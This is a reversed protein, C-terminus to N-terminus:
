SVPRTRGPSAHGSILTGDPDTVSQDVKPHSLRLGCDPVARCGLRVRAVNGVPVSDQPRSVPSATPIARCVPSIASRPAPCSRLSPDSWATRGSARRRHDQRKGDLGTPDRTEQPRVAGALRRRHAHNQPQVCGAPAPHQHLALRIARRRRDAARPPPRTPRSTPADSGNPAPADATTPGTSGTAPPRTSSTSSSTPSEPTAAPPDTTERQSHRLPQTDRAASNPSGPHQQEVLRHVPQIRLANQPDAPEHLLRARCPRVTNTDQRM